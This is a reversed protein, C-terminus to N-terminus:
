MCANNGNSSTTSASANTGMAYSQINREHYAVLDSSCVDSCEKGVRREESRNKQLITQNVPLPINLGISRM